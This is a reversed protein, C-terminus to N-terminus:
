EKSLMSRCGYNHRACLCFYPAHVSFGEGLDDFSLHLFFQHSDNLYLVGVHSEFVYLVNSHNAHSCCSTDPKHLVLDCFSTVSQLPYFFFLCPVTGFSTSCSRLKNFSMSWGNM